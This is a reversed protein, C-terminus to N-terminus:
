RPTYDESGCVCARGTYRQRRGSKVVVSDTRPVTEVYLLTLMPELSHLICAAHSYQSHFGSSRGDDGGMIVREDGIPGTLVIDQDVIATKISSVDAFITTWRNTDTVCPHSM